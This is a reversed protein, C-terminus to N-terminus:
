LTICEEVANMKKFGDKRWREVWEWGGVGEVMVWVWGHGGADEEDAAM